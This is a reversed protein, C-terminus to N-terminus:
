GNGREREGDTEEKEFKEGGEEAKARKTKM